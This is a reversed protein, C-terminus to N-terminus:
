VQKYLIMTRDNNFYSKLFLLNYIFLLLPHSILVHNVYANKKKKAINIKSVNLFFFFHMFISIKIQLSNHCSM